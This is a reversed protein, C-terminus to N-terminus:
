PMRALLDVLKEGMMKWGYRAGGFERKQDSKFGSQVLSLQTGSPTPALTFTVITDLFPVTWTYSLKRQPEIEVFRCNV